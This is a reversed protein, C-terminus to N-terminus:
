EQFSRKAPILLPLGKFDFKCKGKEASFLFKGGILRIWGRANWTGDPNLDIRTHHRASTHKISGLVADAPSFKVETRFLFGNKKSKRTGKGRSQDIIVKSGGQLIGSLEGARRSNVNSKKISVTVKRKKTQRDLRGSWQGDAKLIASHFLLGNSCQAKGFIRGREITLKIGGDEAFNQISISLRFNRIQFKILYFDGRHVCLFTSRKRMARM